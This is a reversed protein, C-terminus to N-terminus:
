LVGQHTSLLGSYAIVSYLNLANGEHTISIVNSLISSVLFLVSSKNKKTM